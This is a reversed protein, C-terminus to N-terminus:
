LRSNHERDLERQVINEHEKIEIYQSQIKEIMQMMEKNHSEKLLREAEEIKQRMNQSCNKEFAEM